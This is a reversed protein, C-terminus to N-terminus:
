RAAESNVAALQSGSSKMRRRSQGTMAVFTCTEAIRDAARAGLYQELEPRPLNSVFITAQKQEYRMAILQHAVTREHEAPTTGIEDLFLVTAAAYRDIVDQETVESDRKFTRRLERAISEPTGYAVRNGNRLLDMAWAAAAYTKGVGPPGLLVLGAGSDTKWREWLGAIAESIKGNTPMVADRFRPPIGARAISEAARQADERAKREQQAREREGRCTPCDSRFPGFTVGIIDVAPTIRTTYEGHQACHAIETATPSSVEHTEIM